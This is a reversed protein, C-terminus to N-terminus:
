KTRSSRGVPTPIDAAITKGLRQLPLRITLHLPFVKDDTIPVPLLRESSQLFWDDNMAVWRQSPEDFRLVWCENSHSNPYVYVWDLEGFLIGLLTAVTEGSALVSNGVSFTV